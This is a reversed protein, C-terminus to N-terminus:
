SLSGVGAHLCCVMRKGLVLLTFDVPIVASSVLTAPGMSCTLSCDCPVPRQCHSAPRQCRSARQILLPGCPYVRGANTSCLQLGPELRKRRSFPLFTSSRWLSLLQVALCDTWALPGLWGRHSLVLIGGTPMRPETAEHILMVTIPFTLVGTLLLFFAPFHANGRRWPDV